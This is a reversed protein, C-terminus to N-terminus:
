AQIERGLVQAAIEASLGSATEKLTSRASQASAGIAQVAGALRTDAEKRAEALIAGERAVAKTREAARFAVMDGHAASLQQHLTALQEEVQSSLAKAEARAREQVAEREALFGLLPRFLIVYLAALTFLFPVTMALALPPEPFIEM